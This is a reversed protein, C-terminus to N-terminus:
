LLASSSLPASKWYMDRGCVQVYPDAGLDSFLRHAAELQEVAAPRDGAAGLRRGDDLRLLGHEFPM